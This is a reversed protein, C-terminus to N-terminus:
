DLGTIMKATQIQAMVERDRGEEEDEEEEEEKEELRLKQVEM